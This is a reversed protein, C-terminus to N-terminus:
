TGNRGEDHDINGGQALPFLVAYFELHTYIQGWWNTRGGFLNPLVQEGRVQGAAWTTETQTGKKMAEEM